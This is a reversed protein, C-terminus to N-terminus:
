AKPAKPKRATKAQVAAKAKTATKKVAEVAVKADASDVKGDKNLDAKKEVEAVVVKATQELAVGADKLDIKGDKDDFGTGRNAYWVAAFVIVAILVVIIEVM